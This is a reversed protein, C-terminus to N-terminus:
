AQDLFHSNVLLHRCFVFCLGLFKYNPSEVSGTRCCIWSFTFLKINHYQVLEYKYNCNLKTIQYM